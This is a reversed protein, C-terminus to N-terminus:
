EEAGDEEEEGDEGSSLIETQNTFFLIKNIPTGLTKKCAESMVPMMKNEIVTNIAAFDILVKLQSAFFEADKDEFFADDVESIVVGTLSMDSTYIKQNKEICKFMLEKMKDKDGTKLANQLSTTKFQYKFTLRCTKVIAYALKALQPNIAEPVWIEGDKTFYYSMIIRRDCLIYGYILM